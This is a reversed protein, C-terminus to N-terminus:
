NRVSDSRHEAILGFVMPDDRLFSARLTLYNMPHPWLYKLLGGLRHGCAVTHLRPKRTVLRNWKHRTWLRHSCLPDGLRARVTTKPTLQYAMGGRPGFETKPRNCCSSPNGNVGVFEM